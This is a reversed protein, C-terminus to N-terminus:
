KNNPWEGVSSTSGWAQKPLYIQVVVVSISLSSVTVFPRLIQSSFSMNSKDRDKLKRNRQFLLMHLKGHMLWCMLREFNKFIPESPNLIRDKLVILDFLSAISRLLDEYQIAMYVATQFLKQLGWKFHTCIM